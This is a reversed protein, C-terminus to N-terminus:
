PHKSSSTAALQAKVAMLRQQSRKRALEQIQTAAAQLSREEELPRRTFAGQRPQALQSGLPLRRGLGAAAPAASTAAAKLLARGITRFEQWEVKGNNNRDFVKWIALQESPTAALGVAELARYLERKSISGAMPVRAASAGSLASARGLCHACLRM